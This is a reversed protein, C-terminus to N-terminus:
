EEFYLWSNVKQKFTKEPKERKLSYKDFYVKYSLSPMIPFLSLQYLKTPLYGYEPSPYFIEGTGGSNYYYMYPNQRNYGHYVSFTWTSPLKRRKTLRTYTLAIDMRHYNRM